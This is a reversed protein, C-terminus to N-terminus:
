TTLKKSPRKRLPERRFLDILSARSVDANEHMYLKAAFYCACAEAQSLYYGLFVNDTTGVLRVKVGFLNGRKYWGKYRRLSLLSIYGAGSKELEYANNLAAIADSESDYLGLSFEESGLRFRCRWKGTQKHFGVLPTSGARHRSRNRQNDSKSGTRLNYRRNDLRNGNIHDIETGKLQPGMIIRHIEKCCWKGDVKVNQRAYGDKSLYLAGREFFCADDLSVTTVFGRMHIEVCDELGDRGMRYVLNNAHKM